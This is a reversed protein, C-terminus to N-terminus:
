RSAAAAADWMRYFESRVSPDLQEGLNKPLELRLILDQVDALDRLRHPATLGSALKLEILKPLAIVSLDDIDVAVDGPDPFSVPKPKGDGPFEGTTIFEVKIGTETDRLAKRAGAFPTVYGRGVLREHIRELGAPTILLDVDETVRAYGHLSLAMGGIIAYDIKEAKLRSAIRRMTQHVADRKMFFDDVLHLIEDASQGIVVRGMALM